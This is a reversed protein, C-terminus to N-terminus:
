RKVTIKNESKTIIKLPPITRVSKYNYIYEQKYSGSSPWMLPQFMKFRHMGHIKCINAIYFLCICWTFSLNCFAFAEIHHMQQNYTTFLHSFCTPPYRTILDCWIHNNPQQYQYLWKIVAHFISWVSNRNSWTTKSHGLTPIGETM